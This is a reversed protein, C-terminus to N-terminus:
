SSTSATPLCFVSTIPLRTAFITSSTCSCATFSAFAGFKFFQFKDRLLDCVTHISTIVRQGHSRRRYRNGISHQWQVSLPQSASVILLVQEVQGWDRSCSTEREYRTTGKRTEENELSRVRGALTASRTGVFDPNLNALFTYDSNYGRSDARATM